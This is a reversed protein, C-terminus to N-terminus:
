SDAKFSMQCTFVEYVIKQRILKSPSNIEVGVEYLIMMDYVILVNQTLSLKCSYLSNVYM